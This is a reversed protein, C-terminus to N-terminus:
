RTFVAYPAKIKAAFRIKKIQPDIGTQGNENLAICAKDVRGGKYSSLDIDLDGDQLEELVIAYRSGRVEIGEPIPKWNIGDASFEKAVINTPPHHSNIEEMVIYINNGEEITMKAFPQVARTPHCTGGGYGWFISGAVDYEHRKRAIIQEFTEGAHLGVKMFLLGSKPNIILSM